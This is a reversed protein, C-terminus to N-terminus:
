HIDIIWNFSIYDEVPLHFSYFVFWLMHLPIYLKFSVTFYGKEERQWVSLLFWIVWKTRQWLILRFLYLRLPSLQGTGCGNRKPFWPSPVIDLSHGSACHMHGKAPLQWHCPFAYSVWFCSILPWCLCFTPSSSGYKQKRNPFQYTRASPLFFLWIQVFACDLHHIHYLSLM